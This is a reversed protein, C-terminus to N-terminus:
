YEDYTRGEEKYNERRPHREAESPVISGFSGGDTSAHSKMVGMTVTAYVGAGSMQKISGVSPTRGPPSDHCSAGRENYLAAGDQARVRGAMTVILLCAYRM